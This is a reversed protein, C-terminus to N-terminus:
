QVVRIGNSIFNRVPNIAQALHKLSWLLVLTTALFAILGAAPLSELLALGFDQWNATVAGLDSFMLSLFQSFDSQVFEAQFAGAVPILIGVSALVTASFLILRKKVSLLLEEERIRAM